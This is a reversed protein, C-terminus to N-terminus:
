GEATRVLGEAQLEEVLGRVEDSCTQRDIAYEETLRACIEDVSIPEALLAWVRSGVENLGYCQGKEIHLAVIEGNVDAELLDQCRIMRTNENLM